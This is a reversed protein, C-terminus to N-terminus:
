GCVIPMSKGKEDVIICTIKAIELTKIQKAVGSDPSVLGVDDATNGNIALTCTIM